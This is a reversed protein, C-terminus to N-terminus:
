GREDATSLALRVDATMRVDSGVKRFVVNQLRLADRTGGAGRGAIADLGGCLLPALYFHVRDVLRADFASGLLTGGGEIM